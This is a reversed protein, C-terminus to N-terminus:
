PRDACRVCRNSEPMYMLRPTAIPKKCLTCIGFDPSEVKRFATKLKSLKRRASRLSAEAVSKNNIADMRTLRGLSNEPAIPKTDEELQLIEKETKEITEAIKEKLAKREEEKM